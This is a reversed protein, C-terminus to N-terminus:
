DDNQGRWEELVWRVMDFTKSHIFCFALAWLAGFVMGGSAVGKGTMEQGAEFFRVFVWLWGILVALWMACSLLAAIRDTTQKTAM